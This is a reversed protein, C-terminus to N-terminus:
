NPTVVCGPIDSSIPSDVHYINGNHNYRTQEGQEIKGLKRATETETGTIIEKEELNGYENDLIASNEYVKSPNESIRKAHAAEHNLIEASSLVYISSTMIAKDNMWKITNNTPNFSNGKGTGKMNDDGYGVFYVQESILIHNVNDGVNNEQLYKVAANFDDIYKQTTGPLFVVFMGTPDIISLPNNACHSYHSIHPYDGSLADPTIFRGHVPSYYRAVNDYLLSGNLSLYQKGTHLRDDIIEGTGGKIPIGTSLYDVTQEVEGDTNVIARISGLYNCYHRIGATASAVSLVLM